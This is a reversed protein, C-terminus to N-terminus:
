AAAPSPDTDPELSTLAARIAARTKPGVVADPTLGHRKQFAVVAATTAPGPLGDEALPPRAGIINLARQCGLLTSLDVHTRAHPLAAGSCWALLDVASGAFRNADAHGPYGSVSASDTWQWFAWSPWDSPTLPSGTTYHALWLDCRRAAEAREARPLLSWFGPATYLLPRRPMLLEGLEEVATLVLDGFAGADLGGLASTSSQWEVDVALPLDVTGARDVVEVFRRMQARPDTTRLFHYAGTLLAADKARAIHEGFASDTLTMGESAKAIVFTNGAAAIRELDAGRQYSSLDVGKAQPRAPSYDADFPAVPPLSTAVYLNTGLIHVGTQGTRGITDHWTVRATVYLPGFQRHEEYGVHRKSKDYEISEAWATMAPTVESDRMPRDSM